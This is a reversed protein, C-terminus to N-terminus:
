AGGDVRCMTWLDCWSPCEGGKPDHRVDGARIREALGRATERAGEVQAWFADDALYDNRRRLGPHRRGEGRRAAPRADQPRRRAAQLRRRAARPRRPRAPRAHLAPDAAAARARDRGGLPAGKGSKYDVVIGARRARTATSGTSRARSRSAASTSGASCSRRRASRASRRGRLPAPRAAARERGRRPRVGRPRALAGPRARPAADRDHGHRVGELATDLCRRM